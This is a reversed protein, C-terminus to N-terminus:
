DSNPELSLREPTLSSSGFTECWFRDPLLLTGLKQSVCIYTILTKSDLVVFRLNWDYNIPGEGLKFLFGSKLM